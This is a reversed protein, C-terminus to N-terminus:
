AIRFMCITGIPGVIGALVISIPGNSNNVFELQDGAIAIYALISGNLTPNTATISIGGVFTPGPLKELDIQISTTLPNPTVSFKWDIVYIGTTNITFVGSIPNYSFDPGLISVTDFGIAGGVPIGVKNATIVGNLISNFGPGSAGTGGTPGVDGTAGNAGTAGREGTAGRPGTAGTPCKCEDHCCCDKDCSAKWSSYVLDNNINIREDM